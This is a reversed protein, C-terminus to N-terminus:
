EAFDVRDAATAQKEDIASPIGRGNSWAHLYAAQVAPDGDEPPAWDAVIKDEAYFPGNTVEHFVVFDTRPIVTHFTESSLRYYFVYDTTAEGMRVTQLYGGADDFLVIDLRGEIMHFSESKGVHKHPPIYVGDGQAILMEHLSDTSAPHTCLRSRRRVNGAARAKLFKIADSRVM